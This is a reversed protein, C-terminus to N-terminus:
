KIYELLDVEIKDTVKAPGSLVVKDSDENVTLMGGPMKVELPFELNLNDKAFYAAAMAGTGCAETFDEVGREFSVASLSSKGEGLWILTVNAGKSDLIKPFRLSKARDRCSSRIDEFSNGNKGELFLCLHPVGSDYIKHNEDEGLYKVRNLWVSTTSEYSSANDNMCSKLIQDSTEFNISDKASVNKAFWLTVARAANGCMKAESGDSNYFEWKFDYKESPFIFICGDVSHQNLHCLENALHSLVQHNAQLDRLALHESSRMELCSALVFTNKTGEIYYLM